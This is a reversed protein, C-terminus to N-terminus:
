FQESWNEPVESDIDNDNDDSSVQSSIPSLKLINDKQKEKKRKLYELYSERYKTISDLELISVKNPSKLSFDALDDWSFNSFFKTEKASKLSCIRNYVQKQLLHKIFDNIIVNDNDPFEPEKKIVEKYVDMPEDAGDGFPFFGYFIEYTLIGLSWYDCSFNYGKGLLVEPAIYHPTGTITNTCNKKILQISTGFDILKLYGKEDVMLNDPKLDRHCIKKSNLYDLIVLLIAVYFQTIYFNYTPIQNRSLLKGLGQGNIFETLYFIFEENKFTRVLKMIFPHDLKQLITKEQLFYKILTKRKNTLKLNIAKIAYFFKGNHVLSVNGFKGKGLTKCFYLDKLTINFSDQLSIIKLLYSLLNKDIMKLFTEKSLSYLTTDALTKITATRPSNVLIAREGFCNGAGIERIFRNNKTVELKGKKILYLKDGQDGEMFIIENPKYKEKNMSKCITILKSLSTNMFIQIKKLHLLNNFFVLAKNVDYIEPIDDLKLYKITNENWEFEITRTENEAKLDCLVNNNNAFIKKYPIGGFLENRKTMIKHDDGFVINGVIPVIVKRSKSIDEAKFIIEDNKYKKLKYFKFIIDLFYDDSFIRLYKSNYFAQKLIAKLLVKKYGEGLYKELLKRCIQYCTTQKKAKITLSRKQNFLLAYEGFFDKAKLERIITQDKICAVEGESIILLSDGTDGENFIIENPSYNRKYMSSALSNVQVPNLLNFFPILTLFALRDNLKTENLKIVKERFINGPLVLLLTPIDKVKANNNRKEKKLLAM